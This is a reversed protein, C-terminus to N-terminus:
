ADSLVEDPMAELVWKVKRHCRPCTVSTTYEVTPFHRIMYGLSLKCNNCIYELARSDFLVEAEEEFEDFVEAATQAERRQRRAQFDYGHTKLLTAIATQTKQNLAILKTYAQVNEDHVKGSDDKLQEAQWLLDNAEALMRAFSRLLQEDLTSRAPITSFLRRLIQDPDREAQFKREFNAARTKRRKRRNEEKAKQRDKRNARWYDLIEQDTLPLKRTAKGKWAYWWNEVEDPEFNWTKKNNTRYEKYWPDITAYRLSMGFYGNTGRGKPEQEKWTEGFLMDYADEEYCYKVMGIHHGALRRTRIFALEEDADTYELGFKGRHIAM